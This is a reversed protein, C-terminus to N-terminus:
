AARELIHTAVAHPLRDVVGVDIVLRDGARLFCPHRQALVGLRPNLRKTFVHVLKADLRRFLRWARGVLVVESGHAIQDDRELAVPM